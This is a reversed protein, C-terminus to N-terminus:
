AEGVARRLSAVELRLADREALQDLVWTPDDLLTRDVYDHARDDSWLWLRATIHEAISRAVEADREVCARVAPQRMRRAVKRQDNAYETLYKAVHQAMDHPLLVDLNSRTNM